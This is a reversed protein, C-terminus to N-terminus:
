ARGRFWTEVERHRMVDSNASRAATGDLSDELEMSTGGLAFM